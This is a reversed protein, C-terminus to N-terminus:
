AHPNKGKTKAEKKAKATSTRVTIDAIISVERLLFVFGSDNPNSEDRFTRESAANIPEFHKIFAVPRPTFEVGSQLEQNTTAGALYGM